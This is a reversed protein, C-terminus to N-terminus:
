VRVRACARHVVLKRNVASDRRNGRYLETFKKFRWVRSSTVSVAAAAILSLASSISSRTMEIITIIVDNWLRNRESKDRALYRQESRESPEGSDYNSV